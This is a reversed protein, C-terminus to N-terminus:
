AVTLYGKRCAPQADEWHKLIEGKSYLIMTNRTDKKQYLAFGYQSQCYMSGTPLLDPIISLFLHWPHSLPFVSNKLIGRAKCKRGVMPHKMISALGYPSSLHVLNRYDGIMDILTPFLTSLGNSFDLYRWSLPSMALKRTIEGGCVCM